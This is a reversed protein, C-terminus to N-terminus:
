ERALCPRRSEYWNRKPKPPKTEPQAEKAEEVRPEVPPYPRVLPEESSKVPSKVAAEVAVAREPADRLVTALAVAGVTLAARLGDNRCGDEPPSRDRVVLQEDPAARSPSREIPTLTESFHRGWRPV